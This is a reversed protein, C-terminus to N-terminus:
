AVRQQDRVRSAAWATRLEQSDARAGRWYRYHYRDFSLLQVDPRRDTVRRVLALHCGATPLKKKRINLEFPRVKAVSIADIRRRSWGTLPPVAFTINLSNPAMYIMFPIHEDCGVPIKM